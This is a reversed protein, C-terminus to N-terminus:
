HVMITSANSTETQLFASPKEVLTNRFGVNEPNPILKKLKQELFKLDLLM